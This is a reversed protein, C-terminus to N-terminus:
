SATRARASWRRAAAPGARRSPSCCCWSRPRCDAGGGTGAVEVHLREARREPQLPDRDARGGAAHALGLRRGGGVRRDAGPRAAALTAAEHAGRRPRALGQPRRGGRRPQDREADRPPRGSLGEADRRARRGQLRRGAAHPAAPRRQDPRRRRRLHLGAPRAQDQALTEPDLRRERLTMFSAQSEPKFRIGCFPDAIYKDVEAPDRSLWDYPTRPPEFRANIGEARIPAPGATGSLVLADILTPTSWDALGALVDRGDLPRVAGAAPGTEREAILRTLVAMDDVAAPAGGPGFDGLSTMGSTMGHGRHDAAYVVYGAEVIPKLVEFYRMAHEGAGHALQIAAKPKGPASWRFGALGTGDAGRLPVARRHGDHLREMTALM